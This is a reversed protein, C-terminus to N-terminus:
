KPFYQRFQGVTASVEDIDAKALGMGELTAKLHSAMVDFHSEKLGGDKLLRAHEKSIIDGIDAPASTFAIKMFNYQHARLSDMNADKFFKELKPEVVVKDYFINVAKELAPEGGM